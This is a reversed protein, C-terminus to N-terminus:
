KKSTLKKLKKMSDKFMKNKSGYKKEGESFPDKKSKSKADDKAAQKMIEDHTMGALPGSKYPIKKNKM